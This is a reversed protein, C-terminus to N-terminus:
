NSRTNDHLERCAALVESPEARKRYDAKVFSYQIVGAADVLYTVALPLTYSKDANYATLDFNKNYKEIVKDPLKYAIGFKKAAKNGKDSLITFGLDHRDSTKESYEPQEPSIAVLRVDFKKFEQLYENYTRLQISCYPCWGGRYWLLVIPGQKLLNKVSIIKGNINPLKFEPIKDGERLATELVGSNAAQEIGEEYIKILDASATELFNEKKENLQEQLSKDRIEIKEGLFKPQKMTLLDLFVKVRAFYERVHTKFGAYAPVKKANFGIAEIGKHRALYIARENHFEQSIVTFKDQGFIEKARIVADLTRFGAYDQYIKSEPVGRKIIEKKMEKPENYYAVSNDGSVIIFNVKGAKYLEAAANMRNHFFLNKRGDPLYRSTGLVVGVKNKPLDNISNYVFKHSYGEILLYSVIVVLFNLVAGFIAAFLLRKGSLIKKGM